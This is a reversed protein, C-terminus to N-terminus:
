SLIYIPTGAGVLPIVVDSAGFDCRSTQSHVVVAMDNVGVQSGAVQAVKM